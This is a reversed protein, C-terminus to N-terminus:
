APCLIPEACDSSLAKRYCSSRYAMTEGRLSRPQAERTEVPARRLCCVRQGHPWPALEIQPWVSVRLVQMTTLGAILGHVVVTSYLLCFPRPM